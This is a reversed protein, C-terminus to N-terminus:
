GALPVNRVEDGFVTWGDRAERAFLELKSGPCLEEVLRYFEEPKRSHGRAKGYLVTTQNTLNVVPRGRTALLCHETQGRLWYGVGMKHKVWTLITKPEFGWADLVTYAARMHANTTWLWLICDDHALSGVDLACIEELSMDPYPARVRHTVDEARKEYRWPPDAVIVRFLGSPIQPPEKAIAEIQRARKLERERQRAQRKAETPCVDGARVAEKIDPPLDLLELRYRVKRESVGLQVALGAVTAPNEGKRPRGGKTRLRVGREAALAVFDEAWSLPDKERCCTPRGFPNM